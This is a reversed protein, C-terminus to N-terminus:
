QPSIKNKRKIIIVMLIQVKKECTVNNWIYNKSETNGLVSPSIM